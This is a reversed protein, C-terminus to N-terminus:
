FVVVVDFVVVYIKVVFECVFKIISFGSLYFWVFWKYFVLCVLFGNVFYVGVSNNM